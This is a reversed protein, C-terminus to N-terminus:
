GFGIDSSELDVEDSLEIKYVLKRKIKEQSSNNSKLDDFGAIGHPTNYINIYKVLKQNKDPTM